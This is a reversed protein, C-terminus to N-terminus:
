QNWKDDETAIIKLFLELVEKEPEAGYLNKYHSVFLEEDSLKRRDVSSFDIEDEKTTIELSILNEFKAHLFKTEETSLPRDTHLILEVYYENYNNLVAECNLFGEVELTKLKRGGVYPVHKLNCVKGQIVDFENFTKLIGAEDFAYELISGSYYVNKTTSVCQKKHLHGLATYICNDNIVGHNVRRIGGLDIPRETSSGEGGLMFLHTVLIEPLNDHNYKAGNSIWRKIKEDYSENDNVKEKLRAETPYSLANFFVKEGNNDEFVFTNENNKVLKVNTLTKETYNKAGAFYVGYEEALSYSAYLRDNDDHNGSIILVARKYNSLKKIVDFFLEEAEAPPSYTDYVDGAIIVVDANVSDVYNCFNFLVEKQEIIRERNKLKKGLHWDSTHIIKM